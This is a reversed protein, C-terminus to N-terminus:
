TPNDTSMDGALMAPEEMVMGGGVGREQQYYSMDGFLSALHVEVFCSVINSQSIKCQSNLIISIEQM